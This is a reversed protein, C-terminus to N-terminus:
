NLMTAKTGSAQQFKAILLADQEAVRKEIKAAVTAVTRQQVGRKSAEAAYHQELVRSKPEHRLYARVEDFEMGLDLLMWDTAGRRFAYFGRWDLGVKECAAKLKREAL